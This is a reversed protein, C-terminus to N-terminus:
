RDTRQTTGEIYNCDSGCLIGIHTRGHSFATPCPRCNVDSEINSTIHYGRKVLFRCVERSSIFKLMICFNNSASSPINFSSFENCPEMNMNLPHFHSAEFTFFCCEFHNRKKCKFHIRGLLKM